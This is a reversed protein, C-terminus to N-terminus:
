PRGSNYVPWGQAKSQRGSSEKLVAESMPEGPLTYDQQDAQFMGYVLHLLREDANDIYEHLEKKLQATSM